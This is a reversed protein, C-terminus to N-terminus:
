VEQVGEMSVRYAEKEGGEVCVVVGLEVREADLEIEVGLGGRFGKEPELPFWMVASEFETLVELEPLKFCELHAEPFRRSTFIDKIL